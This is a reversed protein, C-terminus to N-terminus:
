KFYYYNHPLKECEPLMSNVEKMILEFCEHSMNHDPKINLLIAVSSLTSHKTCGDWLPESGEDLLEQFAKSDSNLDEQRQERDFTRGTIDHVMETMRYIDTAPNHVEPTRHDRSQRHAWWCEVYNNMFRSM